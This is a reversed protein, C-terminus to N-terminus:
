HQKNEIMEGRELRALLYDSFEDMSRLAVAMCNQRKDPTEAYKDILDLATESHSVDASYGEKLFAVAEDTISKDHLIAPDFYGITAGHNKLNRNAILELSHMATMGEYFPHNRTVKDWFSVAQRTAKLSETNYIDSRSAGYSEGMRLLLEHHSREKGPIGYWESLINEIEFFQVDEYETNGIIM